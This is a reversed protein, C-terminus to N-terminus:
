PQVPGARLSKLFKKEDIAFKFAKRGHIFVVPVEENYRAQLEADADIEAVHDDLAPIQEAVADVDGRADLRGGLGAPDADRPADM